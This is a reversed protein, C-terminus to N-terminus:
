KSSAAPASPCNPAKGHAQKKHKFRRRNGTGGIIIHPDISEGDDMCVNHSFCSNDSVLPNVSSTKTPQYTDNSFDNQFPSNANDPTGCVGDNIHPKFPLLIIQACKTLDDDDDCKYREKLNGIWKVTDEKQVEIAYDDGKDALCKLTHMRIKCVNQPNNRDCELIGPYDSEKLDCVVKKDKAPKKDGPQKSEATLMSTTMLLVILLTTRM